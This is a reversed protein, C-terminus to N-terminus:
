EPSGTAGLRHGVFTAPVPLVRGDVNVDTTWTGAELRDVFGDLAGDEKGADLLDAEGAALHLETFDISALRAEVQAAVADLGAECFTRIEAQHGICVPGLCKSAVEAALGDCDVIQGLAASLDPVGLTQQLGLNFGTVAFDGLPLHFAHDGIDIRGAADSELAVNCSVDRAATLEDVLDPTDVLQVAGHLQFALAAIRHRANLNGAADVTGLSLHTIVDFHTLMNALDDTWGVIQESVPVGEYLQQLLYDNVADKFLGLLSDPIADLLDTVIPADTSELVEILTGAPDESLGTLPALADGLLAPVVESQSLDYTSTVEYRGAVRDDAPDDFGGGGGPGPDDGACGLALALSSVLLARPLVSMDGSTLM